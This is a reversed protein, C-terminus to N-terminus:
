ADERSLRALAELASCGRERMARELSHRTLCGFRVPDGHADVDGDLVLTKCEVDVFLPSSYTLNRLRAEHPFLTATEGDSETCTPKSLYVQRFAIQYQVKRREEGPQYQARPNITIPPQDDVLEQMTNSVFEDFSDLQQRVLGKEDFYSTIVAWADQQDITGGGDDFDDEVM